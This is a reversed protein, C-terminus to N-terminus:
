DKNTHQVQKKNINKNFKLLKMCHTKVMNMGGGWVCVGRGLDVREVRVERGMWSQIKKEKTRKFESLEIHHGVVRPLFAQEPTHEM